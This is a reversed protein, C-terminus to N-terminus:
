RIIGFYLMILVINRFNLISGRRPGTKLTMNHVQGLCPARKVRKLIWDIMIVGLAEKEVDCYLEIFGNEILKFTKDNSGFLKVVKYIDKYPISANKKGHFLLLPHKFNKIKNTNGKITHLLDRVLGCGIHLNNRLTHNIRTCIFNDKAYTTPNFSTNM